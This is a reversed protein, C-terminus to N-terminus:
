EHNEQRSRALAVYLDEMEVSYQQLPRVVAPTGALRTRRDPDVILQRLATALEAVSGPTVLLGNEGDRIFEPISGLRSAVIPVGALMAERIVFSFTERSLTPLVLIDTKSLINGLDEHRYSGQHTIVAPQALIESLYHPDAAGHLHFEVPLGALQTAAQALVHVGKHPAISGLYGIRVRDHATRTRSTPLAPVGLLVTRIRGPPLDLMRTLDDRLSNSCATIVDPYDILARMANVRYDHLFLRWPELAASRTTVGGSGGLHGSSARTGGQRAFPLLGSLVRHRGAAHVDLRRPPAVGPGDICTVCDFAHSPGDCLSNDGRVLNVRPCVWYYDYLALVTPIRRKWTRTLLTTSLGIVHECHVVDPQFYELAYEVMNDIQVDTFGRLHDIRLNNLRWVLVGRDDEQWQEFHQRTADTALAFVCIEHRAALEHVHHYTWVGPQDPPFGHVVFLLRM